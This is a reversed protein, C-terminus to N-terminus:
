NNLFDLIIKSTVFPRGIPMFHSALPVLKLEAGPIKDAIELTHSREIVELEGAVVLTPAAISELPDLCYETAVGAFYCPTKWLNLLEDRFVEWHEPTPSTAAYKQGFTNDIFANFLNPSNLLLSFAPIYSDAEFASGILVLQNVREPQTIAIQSAIVAGDSWGVFHANNINLHNLLSLTDDTMQEYTIPTGDNASRGHGRSDLTIVQYRFSLLFKEVKWMDADAYGGHLLVVPTGQGKIKYYMSIGNIDAYNAHVAQTFFLIFLFAYFRKILSNEM